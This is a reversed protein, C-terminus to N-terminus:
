MLSIKFSLGVKAKLLIHEESTAQNRGHFTTGKVNVDNMNVYFSEEFGFYTTNWQSYTGIISNNKFEKSWM